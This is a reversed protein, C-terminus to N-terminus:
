GDYQWRQLDESSFGLSHSFSFGLTQAHISVIFRQALKQLHGPRAASVPQCIHHQLVPPKSCLNSFKMVM